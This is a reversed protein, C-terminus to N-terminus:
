SSKGYDNWERPLNLSEAKRRFFLASVAGIIVTFAASVLVARSLFNPLGALWYVLGIGATAGVFMLAAVPLSFHSFLPPPMEIGLAWLWRYM